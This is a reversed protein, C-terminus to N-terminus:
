RVAGIQRAKLRRYLSAVGILYGIGLLYSALVDTLWHHGQQIRSIGVLSVLGVLGTVGVRRMRTNPVASYVLFALYGYIGVYTLVHGSPFSSGGLPAAVVRLDTGAIPRPRRMLGKTVTALAASAWAVGFAAAELWLRTAGLAGIIAVPILRSQPPFGPWSVARLLRDVGPRTGRQLKITMALDLADSLRARVVAFVLGFGALSVWALRSASRGRLVVVPPPLVQIPRAPV